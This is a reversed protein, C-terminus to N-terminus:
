PWGLPAPPEGPLQRERHAGPVLFALCVLYDEFLVLEQPPATVVVTAHRRRRLTGLGARRLGALDAFAVQPGFRAYFFRRAEPATPTPSVVLAPAPESHSM